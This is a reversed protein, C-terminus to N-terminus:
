FKAFKAVVAEARSLDATASVYRIHAQKLDNAADRAADLEAELDRAEEPDTRRLSKLRTEQSDIWGMIARYGPHTDHQSSNLSQNASASTMKTKILSPQLQITTM